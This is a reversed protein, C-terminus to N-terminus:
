KKKNETKPKYHAFRYRFLDSRIEGFLLRHIPVLFYKLATFVYGEKEFRRVSCIIRKSKLMRFRFGASKARKLYDIDEALKITKDFGTIRKHATKTSFICFGPMHPFLFQSAKLFLNMVGHYAKDIIKDSKPQLYCGALDLRRKNIEDLTKKLFDPPLLVDADLFLLREYDAKKAGLNRQYSVNRVKSSLLRISFSKKKHRKIYDIVIKRTLDNSKGDVILIEMASSFRQDFLEQLLTGINEEENLCPIIVSLM